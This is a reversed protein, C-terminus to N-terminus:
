VMIKKQCDPLSNNSSFKFLSSAFTSGEWIDELLMEEDELITIETGDIEETIDELVAVGIRGDAGVVLAESSM